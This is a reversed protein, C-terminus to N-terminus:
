RRSAPSPRRPPRPIRSASALRAMDSLNSSMGDAASYPRAPDTAVLLDGVVHYGTVDIVAPQGRRQLTSGTMGYRALIKREVFEAHPEGTVQEVIAGLLEYGLNSYTAEHGPPSTLQISPLVDALRAGGIRQEAVSRSVDHPVGARHLLLHASTPSASEPSPAALVPSNLYKGVPANLDLQGAEALALVALATPLKACSGVAFRSQGTLPHLRELDEVGLLERHVVHGENIVAVALGVIRRENRLRDLRDHAAVSAATGLQSVSNGPTTALLREVESWPQGNDPVRRPVFKRIRHPPSTEVAVNRPKM